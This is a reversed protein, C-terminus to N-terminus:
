NGRRMWVDSLAYRACALSHDPQGQPFGEVIKGTHRDIEYEYLSFEDAADPCRAPDIVIKKRSQLWKFGTDLSGKGKVVGRINWGYERYDAISKPEASDGIIRYDAKLSDIFEEIEEDTAHRGYDRKIRDIYENLSITNFSTQAIHERLRESADFNSHKLLTLEDYVYLTETKMNYSFSNFRTPDPFYGFDLGHYCWEFSEIESDTIERLEVNEFINRGTGTAKGLYINEYARLNRAKMEEADHIFKDGLWQPPVDEYTSHHVLRDAKPIRLESNTWNRESSPPNFSFFNYYIDGGRNASIKISESDTFSFESWEELWLIAIYGKEAKISKIKEPEDSGRFYITQGTPLYEIQLPSKLCRFYRELGLKNIAWKLQNYVSDKLTQAVKRVVLANYSPNMVILLIICESVFSSKCSGRGGAEVYETFEHALISKFDAKFGAPFLESTHIDM